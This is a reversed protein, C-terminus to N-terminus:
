TEEPVARLHINAQVHKYEKQMAHAYAGLSEKVAEKYDHKVGPFLYSANENYFVERKILEERVRNYKSNEARKQQQQGALKGREVMETARPVRLKNYMALAEDIREFSFPSPGDNTGELVCFHRLLLALTGADEIGQQAGQGLFPVPPHAADGVLVIRGFSYSELPPDLTTLGIKLAKEVNQLPKLFKEEDWGDELLQNSLEQCEEQSLVHTLGGWGNLVSQQVSEPAVPFHFQFCQETPGTPYFAGHCKTTPSSPLLLGRDQRTISSTGMLCVTGTPHLTCKGGTAISRIQSKAGDAAVLLRTVQTTGDVFQLHITDDTLEKISDLRKGFHIAIGAEVAAEYLVKQLKWRRIGIPQLDMEDKSVEPDKEEESAEELSSENNPRALVTEDAVAVETGDHRKQFVSQNTVFFNNFFHFLSLNRVVSGYKIPDNGTV